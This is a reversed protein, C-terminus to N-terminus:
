QDRESLEAALPRFKFKLEPPTLGAFVLLRNLPNATRGTWCDSRGDKKKKFEMRHFQCELIQDAVEIHCKGVGATVLTPHRIHPLEVERQLRVDQQQAHRQPQARIRRQRRLAEDYIV